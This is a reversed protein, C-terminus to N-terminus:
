ETAITGPIPKENSAIAIDAVPLSTTLDSLDNTGSPGWIAMIAAKATSRVFDAGMALGQIYEQMAEKILTTDESLTAFNPGSPNLTLSVTWDIAVAEAAEVEVKVGCARTSPLVAKVDNILTPSATGNADAIYLTVRTIRFLSGIAEDAVTDWEKVPVIEELITASEVGDVTKAKAEIAAVTAGKLTEILDAITERYQADNETPAGGAFADANTVGVTSDTLTSEVEVVTDPEANGDEGAVIARVSANISLGTMTVAAVTEFRQSQGNANARTKVVTGVPIVVNGADTTQRSFTVVGTAKTAEPRAFGEGFHDVALRELDDPGGTVEPGHATRFFTKRFESIVRRVIESVAVSTVGALVDISSGENLDTLEDSRSTLETTYEEYIEQQSKIENAM